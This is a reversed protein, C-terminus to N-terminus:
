VAPGITTNVLFVKRALKKELRLAVLKKAQAGSYAHTYEKFKIGAKEVEGEVCFNKKDM